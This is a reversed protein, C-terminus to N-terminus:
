MQVYTITLNVQPTSGVTTVACIGNGGASTRFLTGASGGWVTSSGNSVPFNLTATLSVPSSACATGSGQELILTNPTTTSTNNIYVACVYVNTSGSVAVLATTTASTINQFTSQKAILPSQCPDLVTSQFGVLPIGAAVAANGPLTKIQVTNTISNGCLRFLSAGWTLAYYTGSATITAQGTTSGVPAVSVNVASDGLLAVSPQITGSWASGSATNQVSFVLVGSGDVSLPACQTGTLLFPNSVTGNGIQALAATSLLLCLAAALLHSRLKM